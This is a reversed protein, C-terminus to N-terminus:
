EHLRITELDSENSLSSELLIRDELEEAKIVDLLLEIEDATFMRNEIKDKFLIQDMSLQEAIYDVSVGSAAILKDLNKQLNKYEAVIEAFMKVGNLHDFVKQSM